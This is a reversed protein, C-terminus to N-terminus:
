SLRNAKIRDLILKQFWAEITLSLHRCCEEAERNLSTPENKNIGNSKEALKYFNEFTNLATM